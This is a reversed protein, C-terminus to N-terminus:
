LCPNARPRILGFGWVRDRYVYFVSEAARSTALRAEYGVCRWKRLSAELESADAGLVLGDLTRWGRPRWVTFAHVVRGRELVVGAGEPAFRRLNFYWTTRACARCVGHRTGWTRLVEARTMGLRVGALSKGALFIGQRPPASAPPVAVLVALAAAVCLVLGRTM